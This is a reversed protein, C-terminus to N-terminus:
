PGQLARKFAEKTGTIDIIANAVKQISQQGESPDCWWELEIRHQFREIRLTITHGDLGIPGAPYVNIQTTKLLEILKKMKSFEEKKLTKTYNCLNQEFGQEKCIINVSSIKDDIENNISLKISLANVSSGKVHMSITIMFFSLIM